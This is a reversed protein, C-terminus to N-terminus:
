FRTRLRSAWLRGCGELAPAPRSYKTVCLLSYQGAIYTSTQIMDQCRIRIEGIVSGLRHAPVLHLPIHRQQPWAVCPVASQSRQLTSPRRERQTPLYATCFRILCHAHPLAQSRAVRAGQFVLTHKLIASRTSPCVSTADLRLLSIKYWAVCTSQRSRTWDALFPAIPRHSVVNRENNDRTWSALRSALVTSRPILVM